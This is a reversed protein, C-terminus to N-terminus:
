NPDRRVKAAELAATAPVLRAAFNITKKNFPSQASNPGVIHKGVNWWMMHAVSPARAAAVLVAGNNRPAWESSAFGFMCSIIKMGTGRHKREKARGKTRETKRETSRRERTIKNNIEQHPSGLLPWYIPRSAEAILVPQNSIYKWICM